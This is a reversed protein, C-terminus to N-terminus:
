PLAGEEGGQQLAAAADVLCQERDHHLGVDVADGGSLDIIQDFREARVGPDGCGLHRPDARAQIRFGSLETVASKGGLVEGVDEEVRGVAFGRDSVADHGLRDNDSDSHGGIPAPFHETEVDSVTLVLAEPGAEEPRQLGSAKIPHLQDDRVGM